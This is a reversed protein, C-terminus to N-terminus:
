LWAINQTWSGCGNMDSVETVTVTHQYEFDLPPRLDPMVEEPSLVLHCADACCQLNAVGLPGVCKLHAWTYTYVM